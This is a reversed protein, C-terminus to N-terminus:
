SPMKRIKDNKLFPRIHSTDSLKTARPRQAMSSMARNFKSRIRGITAPPAPTITTMDLLPLGNSTDLKALDAAIKVGIEPKLAYMIVLMSFQCESIPHFLDNKMLGIELLEMSEIDFEGCSVGGFFRKEMYEGAENDIGGMQASDCPGHGYWMVSSRALEHLFVALFM